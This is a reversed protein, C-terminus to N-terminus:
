KSGRLVYGQGRVTHILRTLGASELKKRVYNIYVDVVNSLGPEPDRWVDRALTARSVVRGSNRILYELLEFERSSLELVAGARSAVRSVPDLELDDVRLPGTGSRRLLARLRALLEDLAFPKVLYDDAGADLGEVRDNVSDRATLLLVPTEDGKNRLAALLEIGSRGPLMWDLIALDFAENQILRYATDGDTASRVAYGDEELGQTLSQVLKVEDDVLLIQPTFPHRTEMGVLIFSAEPQIVGRVNSNELSEYLAATGTSCRRYLSMHLDSTEPNESM